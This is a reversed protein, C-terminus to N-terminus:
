TICICHKLIAVIVEYVIHVCAGFFQVHSTEPMEKLVIQASNSAVSGNLGM